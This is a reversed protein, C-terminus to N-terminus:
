FRRWKRAAGLLYRPDPNHAGPSNPPLFDGKKPRMIHLRKMHARLTSPKMGLAHASGTLGEIKWGTERLIGLIHEREMEALVCM